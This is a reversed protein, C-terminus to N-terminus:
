LINLLIIEPNPYTEFDWEDNHLSNNIQLGLPFMLLELKGMASSEVVTGDPLASFGLEVPTIDFDMALVAIVQKPNIQYQCM